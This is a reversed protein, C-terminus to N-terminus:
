WGAQSTGKRFHVLPGAQEVGAVRIPPLQLSFERDPPVPSHNFYVHFCGPVPTPGQLSASPSSTLRVLCQYGGLPIPHVAVFTPKFSQGDLELNIEGIETVAPGNTHIEIAFGFPEASYPRDAQARDGALMPLPAPLLMVHSSPGDNRARVYIRVDGKSLYTYNTGYQSGHYTSWGSAPDVFGDSTAKWGVIVCGGLCAALLGCQTFWAYM